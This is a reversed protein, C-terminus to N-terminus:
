IYKGAVLSTFIAASTQLHESSKSIFYDCNANNAVLGSFFYGTGFIFALGSGVSILTIMNVNFGRFLQRICTAFISAGVSFMILATLLITFMMYYTLMGFNEPYTSYEEPILSSCVLILMCTLCVILQRTTYSSFVTEDDDEFPNEIEITIKSSEPLAEIKKVIESGRTVQPNYTVTFVGSNLSPTGLVGEIGADFLSVIPQEPGKTVKIRIVRKNEDDAQTIDSVKKVKYGLDNLTKVVPDPGFITAISFVVKNTIFDVKTNSVPPTHTSLGKEIRGACNSCTM